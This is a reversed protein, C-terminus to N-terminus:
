GEVSAATYSGMGTSRKIGRLWDAPIAGAEYSIAMSNSLESHTRAKIFAMSM